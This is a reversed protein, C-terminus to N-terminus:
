WEWMRRQRKSQKIWENWEYFCVNVSVCCQRAEVALFHSPAVSTTNTPSSTNYKKKPNKPIETGNCITTLILNSRLEKKSELPRKETWMEQSKKLDVVVYFFFFFNEIKSLLFQTRKVTVSGFSHPPRCVVLTAFPGILSHTLAFNRGFFCLCSWQFKSEDKTAMITTITLSNSITMHCNHNAIAVTWQLEAFVRKRRM